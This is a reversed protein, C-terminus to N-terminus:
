GPLGDLQRAAFGAWWVAGRVDRLLSGAHEEDLDRGDAGVLSRLDRVARGAALRVATAARSAAAAHPPEPVSCAALNALDACRLAAEALVDPAANERALGALADLQWGLDLAPDRVIQLQLFGASGSESRCVEELIGAARAGASVLNPHEPASM